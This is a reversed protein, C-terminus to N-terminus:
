EYQSMVVLQTALKKFQFQNESFIDKSKPEDKSGSLYSLVILKDKYYIYYYLANIYLKGLPTDKVSRVHIEATPLGDINTKKGDLFEGLSLGAKEINVKELVQDVDEKTMGDPLTKISLTSSISYDLKDLVFNKIVNPRMGDMQKWECPYEIKIKVGLSKESGETNFYCDNNNVSSIQEKKEITATTKQKNNNCSTIIFFLV